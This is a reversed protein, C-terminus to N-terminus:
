VDAVEETSNLWEDREEDSLRGDLHLAYAVDPIIHLMAPEGIEIVLSIYKNLAIKGDKFKDILDSMFPSGHREVLEYMITPLNSLDDLSLLLKRRMSENFVIYSRIATRGTGELNLVLRQHVIVRLLDIIKAAMPRQADSPFMDIIRSLTMETSGTHLTTVALHGTLAVNVMDEITAADRSEGYFIKKPTRRLVNSTARKYNTLHTGIESQSVKGVRNPVLKLDFEVPDEFTIVREKRTQLTHTFLSAATTSKGSGTPGTILVLGYDSNFATVISKHIQLDEVSPAVEPFPRMIIEIGHDDMKAMTGTITVRFNHISDDDLMISHRVKIYNQSRLYDVGTDQYISRVLSEVEDKRLVRDSIRYCEGNIDAWIFDDVEFIVDSAGIGKSWSIINDVDALSVTIPLHRVEVCKMTNGGSHISPDM